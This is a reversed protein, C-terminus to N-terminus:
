LKFNNMQFNFYFIIFNKRVTEITPYKARRSYIEM